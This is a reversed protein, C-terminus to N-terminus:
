KYPRDSKQFLFCQRTHSVALRLWHLNDMSFFCMCAHVCARVCACVCVCFPTFLARASSTCGWKNILRTICPWFQCHHDSKYLVTRREWASESCKLPMHNYILSQLKKVVWPRVKPNGGFLLRSNDWFTKFELTIVFRDARYNFTTIPRTAYGYGNLSYVSTSPVQQPSPASLPFRGLHPLTTIYLLATCHLWVCCALGCSLNM